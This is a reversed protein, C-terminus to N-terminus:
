VRACASTEAPSARLAIAMSGSEFYLSLKSSNAAKATVRL